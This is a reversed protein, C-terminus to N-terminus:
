YGSTGGSGLPAAPCGVVIQGRPVDRLVVAGAGVIAGAGIRRGQLVRAGLGVHAHEEVVVAGGLACGTALHVHDGVECDHEVIAGTNVIVDERVVAGAGVVAGALVVSGAGVIASGAVYGRGHVVAPLAFGLARLHTFLRARPGNDRVGGVGLCAAVIGDGLLAPLLGDDGAVPVGDVQTGARAPDPDTCCRPELDQASTRVADIVSRGHGGAGVIVVGTM